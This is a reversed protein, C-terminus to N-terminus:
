AFSQHCDFISAVDGFRLHYVVGPLRGDRDIRFGILHHGVAFQQGAFGGFGQRHCLTIEQELAVHPFDIFAQAGADFHRARQDLAGGREGQGIVRAAFAPQGGREIRALFDCEQHRAARHERM